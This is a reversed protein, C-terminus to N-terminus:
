TTGTWCGCRQACSPMCITRSSGEPQWTVARLIEASRGANQRSWLLDRRLEILTAAFPDFFRRGPLPLAMPDSQGAQDIGDVARLTVTM